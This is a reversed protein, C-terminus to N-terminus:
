GPLVRSLPFPSAAGGTMEEVAAEATRHAMSMGHGTFGGCFWVTGQDWEGPVAGVLPLGDPSFGMTGSWRARVRLDGRAIGLMRSAFAELDNQVGPTTRDEYGCEQEAHRRRCGGVLVTGDTTQRFYEYGHNAYYSCDLRLGSNALALMQGRRATIIAALGPLLLPLFANICLLVRRPTIVADSTRVRVKGSEARIEAVEQHEIVQQRLKGGLFRMLEFSNCASDGPNMLGGRPRGLKWATDEGSEVWATEFGDRKLLEVSTLLEDREEDDLALLCSPIRQYTALSDIGERRLGEVNEETWRWVTRALERGYLEVARKYNEAAGRMLFGANRTSAGWGTSHREVIRYDIGRRQLALAASVGCIGAGVVLVDTEIHGLAM